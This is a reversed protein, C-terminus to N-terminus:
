GEDLCRDRLVYREEGDRCFYFFASCRVYLDRDFHYASWGGGGLPMRGIRENLWGKGGM